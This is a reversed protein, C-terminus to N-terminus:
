SDPLPPPSIGIRVQTHSIDNKQMKVFRWCAPPSDPSWPLAASATRYNRASSATHYAIICYSSCGRHLTIPIGQVYKSTVGNRHLISSQLRSPSIAHPAYPTSYIKQTITTTSLAFTPNQPELHPLYSALNCSCPM